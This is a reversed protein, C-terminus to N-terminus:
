EAIRGTERPQGNKDILVPGWQSWEYPYDSVRQHIEWFTRGVARESINIVNDPDARNVMNYGAQDHSACFWRASKMHKNSAGMFDKGVVHHDPHTEPTADPESQYDGFAAYAADVLALMALTDTM